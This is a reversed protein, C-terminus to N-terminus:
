NDLKYFVEYLLRAKYSSKDPDTEYAPCWTGPVGGTINLYRGLWGTGGIFGVMSGLLVDDDFVEYVLAGIGGQYAPRVDVTHEIRFKSEILEIKLEDGSAPVDRRVRGGDGYPLLKSVIEGKQLYYDKSLGVRKHVVIGAEKECRQDFRQKQIPIDWFPGFFIILYILSVVIRKGTGPVANKVKFVWFMSFAYAAFIVAYLTM